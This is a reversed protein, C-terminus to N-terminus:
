TYKKKTSERNKQLFFGLTRKIVKEGFLCNSSKDIRRKNNATGCENNLPARQFEFEQTKLDFPSM